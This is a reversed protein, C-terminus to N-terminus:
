VSNSNQKVENNLRIDYKVDATKMTPTSGLRNGTLSADMRGVDSLVFAETTTELFPESLM